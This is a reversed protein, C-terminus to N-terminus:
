SVSEVEAPDDPKSENTKAILSGLWAYFLIQLLIVCVASGAEYAERGANASSIVAILLIMAPSSLLLLRIGVIWGLCLYKSLFQNGYTRGNSEYLHMIGLVTIFLGAVGSVFDWGSSEGSSLLSTIALLVADAM